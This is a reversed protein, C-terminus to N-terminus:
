ETGNQFCRYGFSTEVVFTCYVYHVYRYCWSAIRSAKLLSICLPDFSPSSRAEEFSPVSRQYIYIYIYTYINISIHM